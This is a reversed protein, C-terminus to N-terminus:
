IFIAAEDARELGRGGDESEGSLLSCKWIITIVLLMLQRFLSRNDSFFQVTFQTPWLVRTM